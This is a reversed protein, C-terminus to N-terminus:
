LLGIQARHERGNTSGFDDPEAVFEPLPPAKQFVACLECAKADPRDAVLRLHAHLALEGREYREPIALLDDREVQKAPDVPSDALHRAQELLEQLERDALAM